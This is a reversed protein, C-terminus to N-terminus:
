EGNTATAITPLIARLQKLERAEPPSLKGNRAKVNLRALRTRKEKASASRTSTAGFLETDYAEVLDGYLLKKLEVGEIRELVDKSGPIPLRWVSGREAAQCILPSHTTVIFQVKPFYKLFWCGIRRQWTPHLHADVEDILVVGPMGVVMDGADDREFIRDPGYALTMQRILEFTMSLISRYGDSLRTVSVPHDYGDKFVVGESSVEHLQVGHPLLKGDNLFATVRELLHRDPESGELRRVHLNQLWGLCETLAVDEGFASLHPALHPHSYFLKSQTSDGGGFRRFPGYSACFWGKGDGWIYRNANSGRLSGLFVTKHSGTDNRSFTLVASVYRQTPQKGKGTAKDLKPDQEIHLAIRGSESNLSLWDNWNQRLAAAERPGTLGLAISRILTTKGAGNDGILVHWGAYEDSSFHLDISSIARIHQISARNLYVSFEWHNV